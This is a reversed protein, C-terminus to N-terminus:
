ESHYDIINRAGPPELYDFNIAELSKLGKRSPQVAAIASDIIKAWQTHVVTRLDFECQSSMRLFSSGAPCALGFRPHSHWFPRPLSSSATIPGASLTARVPISSPKFPLSPQPYPKVAQLFSKSSSSSHISPNSSCIQLRSAKLAANPPQPPSDPLHAASLSILSLFLSRRPM